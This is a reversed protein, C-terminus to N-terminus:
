RRSIVRPEKRQSAQEGEASASESRVDADVMDALSRGELADRIAREVRNSLEDVITNWEGGPAHHPDREATRVADLIECVAIRRPDKAPVLRNETTRTILTARMLSAVVPDLLHRPIRISAALSEIRWGHSPNEFDRGILLMANLALRERLSNSMAETRQGLRLYDPNQLYFALQAGLLLILWSLYLWLMAVLVIAFGSYIAEYRSLSVVFSTFLSGTAAWLAGAFIGGVFAHRWLVRTNPVFVYLFTFVAIVVVYPM